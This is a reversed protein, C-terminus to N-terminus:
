ASLPVNRSWSPTQVEIQTRSRSSGRISAGVVGPRDDRTSAGVQRQRPAAEAVDGAASDTASM